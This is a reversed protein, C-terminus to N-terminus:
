NVRIKGSIKLTKPPQRPIILLQRNSYINSSKKTVMQYLLNEDEQFQHEYVDFNTERITIGYEALMKEINFCFENVAERDYKGHHFFRAANNAKSIDYNSSNAWGGANIIIGKVENLNHDLVQISCEASKMEKILFRVSDVRVKDDMGLISFVLPSDLYVCLRDFGDTAPESYFIAQRLINSFCIASMFDFLQTNASPLQQLYKNWAFDFSTTAKDSELDRNLLFGIDHSNIFEVVNNEIKADDVTYYGSRCFSKFGDLLEKWSSEFGAMDVKYFSLKDQVVQYRGKVDVIAGNRVGVGLVQRVFTLPVSFLYREQFKDCVSQAEVFKSDEEILINALFSFYVDLVNDGLCGSRFAAYLKLSLEENKMANEM